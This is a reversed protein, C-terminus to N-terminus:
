YQVDVVNDTVVLSWSDGWGEGQALITGNVTHDFTFGEFGPHGQALAGPRLFHDILYTMWDEAAHFKEGGDFHILTGDDSAVWHCFRNPQGMPPRNVNTVDEAVTPLSPTEGAPWIHVPEVCYPGKLREARGSRAFAKLYAVESANLAPVVAVGGEFETNYGM